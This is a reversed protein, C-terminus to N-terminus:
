FLDDQTKRVELKEAKQKEDEYKESLDDLETQKDTMETDYKQLWSM